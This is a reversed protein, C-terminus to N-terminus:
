KVDDFNVWKQDDLINMIQDKREKQALRYEKVITEISHKAIPIFVDKILLSLWSIENLIGTGGIVGGVAGMTTEISKDKQFLQKNKTIESELELAIKEPNKDSILAVKLQDILSNFAARRELYQKRIEDYESQSIEGKKKKNHIDQINQEIKIKESSLHRIIGDFNKANDGNCGLLFSFLFIATFLLKM